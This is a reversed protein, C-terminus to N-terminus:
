VIIKTPLSERDIFETTIFTRGVKTSKTSIQDILVDIANEFIDQMSIKMTSLQPNCFTGATIGGIGIVGVDKGVIYGLKQLMTITYIGKIDDKVIIADPNSNIMMNQITQEISQRDEYFGYVMSTHINKEAVAKNYGNLRQQCVIYDLDGSLYAISKYGRDYALMTAKYTDEVNNNDVSYIQNDYHDLTGVVVLPIKRQLTANLIHLDNRSALFLVGAIRNNDILSLLQQNEQDEPKMFFPMFHFGKQTLKQAIFPIGEIITPNHFTQDYHFNIIVAIATSKGRLAVANFDPAYGLKGAAELVKQRTENNVRKPNNFVFSVTTTSVNALQAVDKITIKKM